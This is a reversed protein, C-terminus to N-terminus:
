SRYFPLVGLGDLDPIQLLQLHSKSSQNQTLRTSRTGKDITNLNVNQQNYAIIYALNIVNKSYTIADQELSDPWLM